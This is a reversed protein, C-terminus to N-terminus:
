IIAHAIPERDTHPAADSGLVAEPTQQCRTDGVLQCLHPEPLREVIRGERRRRPALSRADALSRSRGARLALPDVMKSMTCRYPADTLSAVRSTAAGRGAAVPTGNRAPSRPGSPNITPRWGPEDNM